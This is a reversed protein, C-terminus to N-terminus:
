YIYFFSNIEAAEFMILNVFYLYDLLRVWINHDSTEQEKKPDPLGNKQDEPQLTQPQDQKLECTSKRLCDLTKFIIKGSLEGNPRGNDTTPRGSWVAM